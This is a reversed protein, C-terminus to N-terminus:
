VGHQTCCRQLSVVQLDPRLAHRRGPAGTQPSVTVRLQDMHVHGSAACCAATAQGSDYMHCCIRFAACAISCMGHQVQLVYAFM